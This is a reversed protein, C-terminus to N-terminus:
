SARGAVVKKGEVDTVAFLYAEGGDRLGLRQRVQEPTDPFNRAAINARGEPLAATVSKRDYRCVNEIFFTRGPVDSVREASTYLHTNPHLKSLGHRQAFSRFAGAKLVAANPEYLYKQPPSFAVEASQEAEFTFEFSQESGDRLLHVACIPVGDVTRRGGGATLLYLVERCENDAAVVWIKEVCGLQEAARHLDLLPATKLLIQPTIQFILDKVALINPQCDELRFVRGGAGDRRAPDLYVLDYTDRNEALFQEATSHLCRINTAGLQAFNHRAAESLEARQELHLVEGFQQAFFFADVGLGGTLDAMKKGSFLRAKHQATRESSAQELSLAAPFSLGPQYWSPIKHRLRQLAGVQQAVFAASWGNPMKSLALRHPDRDRHQWIYGSLTDNSM